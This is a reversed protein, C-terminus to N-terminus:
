TADALSVGDDPVSVCDDPVSVADNSVNVAVASDDPVGVAVPAGEAIPGSSGAM